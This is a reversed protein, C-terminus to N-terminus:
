LAHVDFHGAIVRGDRLTEDVWVRTPVGAPGAASSAAAAATKPQLDRALDVREKRETVTDVQKQVALGALTGLLSGLPAGLGPAAVAGAITGVIQGIQQPAFVACGGAAWCLGCLLLWRRRM